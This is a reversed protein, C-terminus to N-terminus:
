NADESNPGFRGVAISNYGMKQLVDAVARADSLPNRLKPLNTYNSNGVVLALRVGHFEAPKATPAPTLLKLTTPSNDQPRLPPNPDSASQTQAKTFGGIVESLEGLIQNLAVNYEGFTIKGVYLQAIFADQKRYVGQILSNVQPPLMAFVPEFAARCKEHTQIALNAVRKDKLWDTRQKDAYCIDAQRWKTSSQVCRTSSMIQGFLTAITRRKPLRAKIARSLRPRVQRNPRLM